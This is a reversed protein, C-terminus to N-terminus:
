TKYSKKKEKKGNKVKSVKDKKDKKSTKGISQNAFQDSLGRGEGYNRLQALAANYAADGEAGFFNLL